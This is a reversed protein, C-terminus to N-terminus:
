NTLAHSGEEVRQKGGSGPKTTPQAPSLCLVSVLSAAEEWRKKQGNGKKGKTRPSDSLVTYPLMCRSHLQSRPYCKLHMRM